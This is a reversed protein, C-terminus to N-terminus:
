RAVSIHTKKPFNLNEEFIEVECNENLQQNVSNAKNHDVTNYPTVLHKSLAWNLTPNIGEVNRPFTIQDGYSVCFYRNHSIQHNFNRIYRSQNSLTRIVKSIM